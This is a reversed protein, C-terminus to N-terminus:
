RKRRILAWVGAIIAGIGGIVPAAVPMGTDSLMEGKNMKDKQQKEAAEKAQREQEAKKDAEDKAKREAEAKNYDDVQQQRKALKDKIDNLQKTLEDRKANDQVAAIKDELSKLDIQPMEGDQLPANLADTAEALTDAAETQATTEAQKAAAIADVLAKADDRVQKLPPNAMARTGQAKRFAAAVAPNNKIYDPQTNHDAEADVLPQKDAQLGNIASRLDNILTDYVAQDVDGQTAPAEATAIAQELAQKTAATAGQSTEPQKAEALLTRLENLKTNYADTLKKLEGQLEAKRVTDKVANIKDQADTFYVPSQNGPKKAEAIAAAADAQRQAEAKEEAEIQKAEAIAQELEDKAQKIQDPTADDQGNVANAAQLKEKVKAYNQVFASESPVSDIVAKLAAKDPRLADLKATLETIQQEIASQAVDPQAQVGKAAQVAAALAERTEQSAGATTAPDEARTILQQLEDKKANFATEVANIRSELEAKKVPDKVAAVKAKADTIDSMKKTQEAKVIAETAQQQRETEAQRADQLAKTLADAAQKIEAPTPNPLGNVRQAETLAAAVAPDAKIHEDTGNHLEIAQTLADKDARLAQVADNLETLAQDIQAQTADNKAIIAEAAAKKDKVAQVSDETYGELSEDTTATVKAQLADADTIEIERDVTATNNANDTASYQLTYNGKAPNAPDLNIAAANNTVGATTLGSDADNATVDNITIPTNKRAVIKAPAAPDFVPLTSDSFDYNVTLYGSFKTDTLNGYNFTTDWNVRVSGKGSLGVLEIEGGVNKVNATEIVPISQGDVDLLVNHFKRQGKPLDVVGHKQDSFTSRGNVLNSFGGDDFLAHLVRIDNGSINIATLKPLSQVANVDNENLGVVQHGVNLSILESLSGLPHLDLKKTTQMADLYLYQLKNMPTLKTLDDFKLGGLNLETWNTRSFIPEISTVSPNRSINLRVLKPMNALKQVEADNIKTASAELRALNPITALPSVDAVPNRSINLAALKPLDKLPSLDTIQNSVMDIHTASVLFQVGELNTINKGNLSLQGYMNTPVKMDKATITQTATRVVDEPQGLRKREANMAKAIVENLAAKLNADPINVEYSDPATAPDQTNEASTYASAIKQQDATNITYFVGGSLVIAAVAMASVYTKATTIKM